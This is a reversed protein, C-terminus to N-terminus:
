PIIVSCPKDGLWAAEGEPDAAESFQKSTIYCRIHFSSVTSPSCVTVQNGSDWQSLTWVPWHLNYSIVEFYKNISYLIFSCICSKM